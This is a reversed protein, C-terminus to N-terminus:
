SHARARQRSRRAVMLGLGSLLLIATAPEPVNSTVTATNGEPVDKFSFFFEGVCGNNGENCFFPPITGGSLIAESASVITLTQFISLSDVSFPGQPASFLFGFNFIPGGTANPFVPTLLTCLGGVCTAGGATTFSFLETGTFGGNTGGGGRVGIVPDIPPITDALAPCSSILAAMVLIVLRTTKM